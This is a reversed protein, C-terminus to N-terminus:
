EALGCRAARRGLGKTVQEFMLADFLLGPVPHAMLNGELANHELGGFHGIEHALSHASNAWAIRNCGDPGHIEGNPASPETLVATLIGPGPEAHLVIELGLIDEAGAIYEAVHETGAVPGMVFVDVVYRPESEPEPATCGAILTVILAFTPRLM